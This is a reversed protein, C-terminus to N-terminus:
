RDRRLPISGRAHERAILAGEPWVVDIEMVGQKPVTRVRHTEPQGVNLVPKSAMEREAPPPM